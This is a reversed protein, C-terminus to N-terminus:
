TVVLKPGFKLCKGFSMGLTFGTLELIKKNTEEDEHSKKQENM